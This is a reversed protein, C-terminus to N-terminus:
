EEDNYRDGYLIRDIIKWGKRLFFNHITDDSVFIDFLLVCVLIIVILPFVVYEWSQVPKGKVLHWDVAVLLLMVIMTLYCIVKILKGRRSNNDMDEQLKDDKEKAWHYFIGYGFSTISFLPMMIIGLWGNVDSPWQQGVVVEKWLLYTPIAFIIGIVILVGSGILENTSLKM